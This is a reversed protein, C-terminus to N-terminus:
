INFHSISFCGNEIYCVEKISLFVVKGCTEADDLANHADYEIDFYEGLYTLKHSILDPWARRSLILTDFYRIHPLPLGYHELTGLLVRIDFGANHAVLPLDGIFEKMQDWVLPFGPAYKVDDWTLHHILTLDPNVYGQPPCILSYYSDTKEGNEFKVLGVSIASSASHTGTEFDIAVFDMYTLIVDIYSISWM